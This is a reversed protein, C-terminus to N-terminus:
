RTGGAARTLGRVVGPSYDALVQQYVAHYDAAIDAPLFSAAYRKGAIRDIDAAGDLVSEIGAALAAPDPDVLLGRRDALTVPLGDVNTAVVPVGLALATVASQSWAEERSPVVHVTAGATYRAPEYSWGTLHVVDRLGLTDVLERLQPQMPGDGVLYSVPPEKMAALAHLLLDPGKDERLRGTFTLRPTVLGPRPESHLTIPSRGALVKVPDVRLDRAFTHVAPGHVFFRDIRPSVHRGAKVHNGLPWTLTNHESAVLPVQPPVARAAAWWAGFMHAHVLDASEIRSSIWRAFNSDPTWQRRSHGTGDHLALVEADFGFHRAVALGQPTADGALLRTEVGLAAQARALRLASLQAGGPELVGLIRIVRM